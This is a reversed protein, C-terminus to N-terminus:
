RPAAGDILTKMYISILLADISDQELFPAGIRQAIKRLRGVDLDSLDNLYTEVDKTGGFKTVKPYSVGFEAQLYDIEDNESPPLAQALIAKDLPPSDGRRFERALLLIVKNRAENRQRSGFTSIPLRNLRYLLRVTLSSLSENTRRPTKLDLGLYHAFGLSIDGFDSLASKFDKVVIHGEPVGKRFDELRFRYRTSISPLSTAGGKIHEQIASAAFDQPDRTFAFVRTQMGRAAFFSLLAEKDAASLTSLDEGSIILRDHEPDALDQELIALYELRKQEIEAPSLGIKRWGRFNVRDASFITIMPISHNVEPFSAYRTTPDTYGRMSEQIASSGTKHIGVHLLVEKM